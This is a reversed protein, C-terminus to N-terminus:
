ERKMMDIRTSSWTTTHLCTAVRRSLRKVKSITALNREQQAQMYRRVLPAALGLLGQPVLEMRMVLLITEM